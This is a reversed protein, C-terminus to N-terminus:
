FISVIFSGRVVQMNVCKDISFEMKINSYFNQTVMLLMFNSMKKVKTIKKNDMYLYLQSILLRVKGELLTSCPNPALCFWLLSM